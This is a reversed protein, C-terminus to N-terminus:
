FVNIAYNDSINHLEFYKDKLNKFIFKLKLVPKSKLNNELYYLIGM